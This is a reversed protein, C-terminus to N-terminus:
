NASYALLLCIFSYALILSMYGIEVHAERSM